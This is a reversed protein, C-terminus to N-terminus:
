EPQIQSRNMSNSAKPDFEKASLHKQIEEVKQILLLPRFDLVYNRIATLEAGISEEDDFM